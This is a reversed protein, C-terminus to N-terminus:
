TNVERRVQRIQEASTVIRACQGLPGLPIHVTESFSGHVQTCRTRRVIEAANGPRIGGGPLIEIKGQAADLLSALTEVGDLTSARGGSTLVRAFGLDILTRLGAQPDPLLDFARHFVVRGPGGQRALIACRAQDITRGPTLCGVAVATAGLALAADLDHRVVEFEAPTYVFDGPRPRILVVLPLDVSRRVERILGVSPTLGSLDLASCLEIRDAGAAQATAAGEVTEVAVEILVRPMPM